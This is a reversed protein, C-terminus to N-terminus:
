RFKTKPAQTSGWDKKNGELGLKCAHEPFLAGAENIHEKLQIRLAAHKLLKQPWSSARM